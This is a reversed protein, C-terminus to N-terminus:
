EDEKGTNDIRKIIYECISGIFLSAIICCASKTTGATLMALIGIAASGAIAIYDCGFKVFKAISKVVKREM